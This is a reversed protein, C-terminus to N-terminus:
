QPPALYHRDRMKLEMVGSYAYVFEGWAHRHRPYSAQGHLEAARFVIPAPLASTYPPSLVTREAAKMAFRFTPPACRFAPFSFGYVSAGVWM